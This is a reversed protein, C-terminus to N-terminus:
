MESKDKPDDHLFIAGLAGMAGIACIVIRRKYYQKSHKIDPYVSAVAVGMFFTILALSFIMLTKM